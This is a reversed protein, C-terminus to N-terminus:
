LAGLILDLSPLLYILLSLDNFLIMYSLLINTWRHTFRQFPNQRQPSCLVPAYIPDCMLYKGLPISPVDSEDDVSHSNNCWLIPGKDVSCVGM